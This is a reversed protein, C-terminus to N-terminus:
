INSNIATADTKIIDIHCIPNLIWSEPRPRPASPEPYLTPTVQGTAGDGALQAVGVRGGRVELDGELQVRGVRGGRVELGGELKQLRNGFARQTVVRADPTLSALLGDQM